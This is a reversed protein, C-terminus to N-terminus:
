PSVTRPKQPKIPRPGESSMSTREKQAKEEEFTEASPRPSKEYNQYLEDEGKTEEVPDEKLPAM